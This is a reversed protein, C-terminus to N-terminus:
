GGTLKKIGAGPGGHPLGTFPCVVLTNPLWPGADGTTLKIGAVDMTVKNGNDDECEIGTGDKATIKNGASTEIYVGDKKLWVKMSDTNWLMVDGTSMGTPRNARDMVGVAIGQDRNGNLFLMTVEMDTKPFSELGYNQVREVDSITEDKLGTVQVRQVKGSNDITTLLARGILLFIKRRIAAIVRDM